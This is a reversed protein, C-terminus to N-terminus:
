SQRAPAFQDRRTFQLPNVPTGGVTMGWHLHAPLEPGSSGSTGIIQGTTVMSDAKVMITDLYFYWSKLGFGHEILITNGTAELYGAFLVRGNGAASVATGTKVDYDIGDHVSPSYAGNFYRQAGYSSVITGGSVPESFKEDAYLTTDAIELLPNITQTYEQSAQISSSTTQNNELSVQQEEFEQDIVQLTLEYEGEGTTVWIPYNGAKTYYSIPLLAIQTYADLSYFVPKINLGTQISLPEGENANKATLIAVEGLRTSETTFKFQAPFDLNLLFQYSCTRTKGSGLDWSADLTINYSGDETPYFGRLTKDVYIISNGKTVSVTLSTPEEKWKASIGSFDNMNFETLAASSLDRYTADNVVLEMNHPQLWQVQWNVTLQVQPTLENGFYENIQYQKILSDLEKKSIKRYTFLSDAALYYEDDYEFIEYVSRESNKELFTVSFLFRQNGKPFTEEGSRSILRRIKPLNANKDLIINKEMSLNSIYINSLGGNVQTLDKFLETTSFLSFLVAFCFLMVVVTFLRLSQKM